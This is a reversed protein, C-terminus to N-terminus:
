GRAEGTVARGPKGGWAQGGHRGGENVDLLDRCQHASMSAKGQWRQCGINNSNLARGGLLKLLCQHGVLVPLQVWMLCGDDTGDSAPKCTRDFTKLRAPFRRKHEYVTLWWAAGCIHVHMSVTRGQTSVTRGESMM